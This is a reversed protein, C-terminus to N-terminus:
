KVVNRLEANRNQSMNGMIKDEAEIGTGYAAARYFLLLPLWVCFLKLLSGYLRQLFSVEPLSM